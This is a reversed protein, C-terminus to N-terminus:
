GKICLVQKLTHEVEVLDAQAAMVAGIDKYAAPTEDVVDADKRCEVGETMRVHDAVSYRKRAENRSMRRGAGHSCSCFSDPNGKGRVIFSRTGMSGPIIGLEGKGARVAGKRTVFVNAGHHMEEAVYNHHCDVAREDTEFQPLQSSSRLQRLVSQMMVERNLRAYSQAWGVAQVYDDFHASGESFYALDKDPLQALHREMDKKALEIFYTGIRNGVGRSGSHLMVWVRECEDLCLEIFHNGTGLTGLHVAHNARRVAPHKDAIRVFEPELKRWHSAVGNPVDSWSGVDGRGGGRGRGHPVAREISSRLLALSDPLDNATLTTRVASMGCGIDVGVAAPIIAGRTPIVSGVTAGIGLHVDPMAAVWGHVIPLKAINQLQELAAAELPVGRTWHKIPVSGDRQITECLSSAIPSSAEASGERRANLRAQRRATRKSNRPVERKAVPLVNTVGRRSRPVASAGSHTTEAAPDNSAFSPQAAALAKRLREAADREATQADGVNASTPPVSAELASPPTVAHAAFTFSLEPTRKRNLELAVESRLQGRIQDLAALSREPSFSTSNPDAPAVVVLLHAVSPAPLVEQVYLSHLAPDEFGSALASSLARQVLACVQQTRADDRSHKPKKRMQLVKTPPQSGNPM